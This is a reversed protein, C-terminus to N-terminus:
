FTLQEETFFSLTHRIVVVLSELSVEIGILDSVVSKSDGGLDELLFDLSTTNEVKWFM